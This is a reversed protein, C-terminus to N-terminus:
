MCLCKCIAFLELRDEPSFMKCDKSSCSTNTHVSQLCDSMLNVKKEAAWFRLEHKIVNEELRTKGMGHFSIKIAKM